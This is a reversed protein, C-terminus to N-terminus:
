GFILGAASILLGDAQLIFEAAKTIKEKIQM